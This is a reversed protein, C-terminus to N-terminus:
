PKEREASLARAFAEEWSAGKGMVIWDHSLTVGSPTRGGRTYYGIEFRDVVNKRRIVVFGVRDGPEIGRTGWLQHAKAHAQNRTV